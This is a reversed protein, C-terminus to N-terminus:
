LRQTLRAPLNQQVQSLGAANCSRSPRIHANRTGGCSCVVNRYHARMEARNRCCAMFRRLPGSGGSKKKKIRQFFQLAREFKTIIIWVVQFSWFSSMEFFKSCESNSENVLDFLFVNQGANSFKLYECVCRDNAVCTAWFSKDVM